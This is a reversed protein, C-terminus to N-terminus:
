AADASETVCARAIRHANAMITLTFTTAPVSPFVSADVLHIQRWPAVRGLLDSEFGGQRDRRHPFSGGWHYSKAGGSVSLAPVMPWFDLYPAVRLLRTLVQRLMGNKAWAIPERSLGIRAPGVRRPNELTFLLRPSEWSPLYGLAASLRPLLVRLTHESQRSPLWGPLGDIYAPNFPYCHLQSVDRWGPGPDVVINFQNLTFNRELRPDGTSRFSLFPLTFQVSEQLSGEVGFMSKSQAVLRTTGIAGCALFIKDARFEHM